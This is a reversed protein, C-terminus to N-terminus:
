RTFIVIFMACHVCLILHAVVVIVTLLLFFYFALCCGVFAVIAVAVVVVVFVLVSFCDAVCVVSTLFSVVAVPSVSLCTPFAYM